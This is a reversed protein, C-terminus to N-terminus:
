GGQAARAKERELVGIALPGAAREEGGVDAKVTRLRCFIGPLGPRRRRPREVRQPLPAEVGGLQDFLGKEPPNM